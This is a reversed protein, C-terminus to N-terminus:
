ARFRIYFRDQNIPFNHDLVSLKCIAVLLSDFVSSSLGDFPYAVLSNYLAPDLSFIASCLSVLEM